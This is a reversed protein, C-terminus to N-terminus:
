LLMDGGYWRAGVGVGQELRDLLVVGGVEGRLGAAVVLGDGQVLLGELGLDAVVALLGGM